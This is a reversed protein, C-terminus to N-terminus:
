SLNQSSGGLEVRCLEM